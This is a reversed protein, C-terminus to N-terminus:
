ALFRGALQVPSLADMPSSNGNVESSSFERFPFRQPLDLQVGWARSEYVALNTDREGMPILHVMASQLLAVYQDRYLSELIRFRDTLGRVTLQAGLKLLTSADCTGAHIWEDVGDSLFQEVRQLLDGLGILESLMGTTVLYPWDPHVREAPENSMALETATPRTDVLTWKLPVDYFMSLQHPVEPNASVLHDAHQTVVDLEQPYRYHTSFADRYTVFVSVPIGALRAAVVAAFGSRADLAIIRQLPREAHFREIEFVFQQRYRVDFYEDPWWVIDFQGDGAPYSEEVVTYLPIGCSRKPLALTV